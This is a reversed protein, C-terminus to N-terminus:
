APKLYILYIFFPSILECYSFFFPFTTREIKSNKFEDQQSASSVSNIRFLLPQSLLRTVAEERIKKTNKDNSKKPFLIRSSLLNKTIM